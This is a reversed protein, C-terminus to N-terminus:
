SRPSWSVVQRTRLLALALQLSSTTIGWAIHNRLPTFCDSQLALTSEGPLNFCAVVFEDGGFRGIMSESPCHQVIRRAIERLIQDGVGYTFNENVQRFRDLNIFVISSSSIHPMPTGMARLFQSRSLLNTLPDRNVSTFESSVRQWRRIM